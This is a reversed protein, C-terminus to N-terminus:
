SKLRTVEGCDPCRSFEVKPSEEWANSCKTCQRWCGEVAVADVAESTPFEFGLMLDIGLYKRGLFQVFVSKANIFCERGQEANSFRVEHGSHVEYDYQFHLEDLTQVSFVSIDKFIFEIGSDVANGACAIVVRLDQAGDVDGLKTEGSDDVFECMSHSTAFYCERVFSHTWDYDNTLREVVDQIRYYKNM